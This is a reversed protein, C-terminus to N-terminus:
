PDYLDIETKFPVEDLVDYYEFFGTRRGSVQIFHKIPDPQLEGM